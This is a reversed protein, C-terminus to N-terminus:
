IEAGLSISFVPSVTTGAHLGVGPFPVNAFVLVRAGIDLLLYSGLVFSAGGGGQFATRPVLEGGSPSGDALLFGGGLLVYPQLFSTLRIGYTFGVDVLIMDIRPEWLTDVATVCGEWGARFGLHLREALAPFRHGAHGGFWLCPQLGLKRDWSAAGVTGAISFSGDRIGPPPAKREAPATEAPALDATVAPAWM